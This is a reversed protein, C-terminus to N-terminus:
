ERTLQKKILDVLRNSVVVSIEDLSMGDELSDKCEQIRKSKIYADLENPENMIVDNDLAFLYGADSQLLTGM